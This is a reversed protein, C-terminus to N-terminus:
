PKVMLDIFGWEAPALAGQVHIAIKANLVDVEPPTVTLSTASAATVVGLVATHSVWDSISGSTTITRVMKTYGTTDISVVWSSDYPTGSTDTLTTDAWTTDFLTFIPETVISTLVLTTSDSTTYESTSTAVRYDVASTVGAIESAITTVFGNSTIDIDKFYNMVNYTGDVLLSDVVVNTTGIVPENVTFFYVTNEDLSDSFNTGTITVAEDTWMASKDVSGITPTKANEVDPDIPDYIPDPVTFCGVLAFAVLVLILYSSMIRKKM